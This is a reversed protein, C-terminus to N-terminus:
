KFDFLTFQVDDNDRLRELSSNDDAAKNNNNNKDYRSDIKEKFSDRVSTGRWHSPLAKPSLSRAPTPKKIPSSLSWVPTPKKALTQSTSTSNAKKIRQLAM